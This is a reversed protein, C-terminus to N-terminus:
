ERIPLPPQGGGTHLFNYAEIAGMVRTALTDADTGEAAHVTLNHVHVDGQTAELAAAIRELADAIRSLENM